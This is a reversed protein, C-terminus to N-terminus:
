LSFTLLEFVNVEMLRILMCKNNLHVFLATLFQAPSLDGNEKQIRCWPFAEEYAKFCVFQVFLSFLSLTVTPLLM